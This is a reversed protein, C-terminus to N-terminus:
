HCAHSTSADIAATLRQAPMGGRQCTESVIHASSAAFIGFIVEDTPVLLTMLLQVPSGEASMSAACAELTAATNNLQEETLDPRYWEVLYCPLRSVFASM